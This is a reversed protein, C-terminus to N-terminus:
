KNTERRGQEQQDRELEQVLEDGAATVHTQKRRAVRGSERM